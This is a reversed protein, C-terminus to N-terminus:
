LGSNETKSFGRLKCISVIRKNHCYTDSDSQYLKYILIYNLSSCAM